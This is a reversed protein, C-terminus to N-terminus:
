RSEGTRMALVDAETLKVVATKAFKDHLCQRYPRDWLLWLYNAWSYFGAVTNILPVWSILALGESALWRRRADASTIPGADPLRVVRIKMVRKGVTQGTRALYIAQYAYSIAVGAVYAFGLLGAITLLATTLEADSTQNRSLRPFMAILAIVWPANVLLAPVFLVLLDILRAVFRQGPEALVHGGPTAYGDPGVGPTWGGPAWGPPAAPYGTPQWGFQLEPGQPDPPPTTMALM